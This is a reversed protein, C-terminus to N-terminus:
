NSAAARTARWIHLSNLSGLLLVVVDHHFLVFEDDFGLSSSKVYDSLFLLLIKPLSSLVIQSRFSVSVVSLLLKLVILDSFSSSQFLLFSLPKDLDIVVFLDLEHGLEAGQVAFFFFHNSPDLLLLNVLVGKVLMEDEALCLISADGVCLYILLAVHQEALRWDLKIVAFVIPDIGDNFLKNILVINRNWDDVDLSCQIEHTDVLDVKLLLRIVYNRLNTSAVLFKLRVDELIMFRDFSLEDDFHDLALLTKLPNDICENSAFLNGRHVMSRVVTCSSNSARGIDRSNLHLLNWRRAEVLVTEDLGGM